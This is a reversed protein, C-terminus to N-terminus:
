HPKEWSTEGTAVNYFFTKGSAEDVHSEWQGDGASEGASEALGKPAVLLERFRLQMPDGAPVLSLKGDNWKGVGLTLDHDRRPRITGDSMLNFAENQPCPLWGCKFSTVKTGPEFREWEVHMHQFCAEPRELQGSRYHYVFSAANDDAGLILASCCCMICPPGVMCEDGTLVIAENTQMGSASEITLRLRKKDFFRSINVVSADTM